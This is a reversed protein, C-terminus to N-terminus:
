AKDHRACRLIFTVLNRPLEILRSCPSNLNSLLIVTVHTIHHPAFILKLEKQINLSFHVGINYMGSPVYDEDSEDSDSPLERDGM